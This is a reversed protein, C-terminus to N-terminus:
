GITPPQTPPAPAATPLDDGPDAGAQDGELCDLFADLRDPSHDRLLDALRDLQQRQDDTLGGKQNFSAFISRGM